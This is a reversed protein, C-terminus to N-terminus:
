RKATKFPSLLQELQAYLENLKPQNTNQKAVNLEKNSSIPTDDTALENKYQAFRYEKRGTVQGIFYYIEPTQTPKTVYVSQDIVLPSLSLFTSPLHINDLINGMESGKFLLVSQNYTFAEKVAKENYDRGDAETFMGHLEGYVHVFNKPSGLRYSLNIDKISVLRYKALFALERLWSVLGTLYEDLLQGLQADEPITNDLLANRYKELFLATGYLDSKTDCLDTVFKNIEPMFTEVQRLLETTLLLLILYDCRDHQNGEMQFFQAIEPNRPTSERQLLQALQVYCLYRLTSQFAEAMFALRRLTREKGVETEMKQLFVEILWGYHQFVRLTTNGVTVSQNRIEQRLSEVWLNDETILNQALDAPLTKPNQTQGLIFDFNASTIFGINFIKDATQISIAKKGELLAQLTEPNRPIELPKGDVMLTITTATVSQILINTEPPM